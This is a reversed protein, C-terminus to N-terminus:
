RIGLWINPHPLPRARASCGALFPLSRRSCSLVAPAMLPPDYPAVCYWRGALVRRQNSARELLGIPTASPTSTQLAYLELALTSERISYGTHRGTTTALGACPLFVFCMQMCVRIYIGAVSDYLYKTVPEVSPFYWGNRSLIGSQCGCVARNNNALTEM